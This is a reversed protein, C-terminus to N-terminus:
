EGKTISENDPPPPEPDRSLTVVKNEPIAPPSVPEPEPKSEEKKGEEEPM